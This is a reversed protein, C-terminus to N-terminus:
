SPFASSARDPQRRSSRALWGALALAIVLVHVGRVGQPGGGSSVACGGKSGPAATPRAPVNADAGADKGSSVGKPTIGVRALDGEFINWTVDCADENGAPKAIPPEIVALDFLTAGLGGGDLAVLQTGLCAFAHTLYEGVCTVYLSSTRAVLGSSGLAYLTGGSTLWATANPGAIPGFYSSQAQGVVAAGGDSGGLKLVIGAESPDVLSAYVGFATTEVHTVATGAPVDFDITQVVKGDIGVRVAVGQTGSARGLWFGSADASMSDYPSPDTYLPAAPATDGVVDLETGGNTFRFAFVSGSTAVLTLV